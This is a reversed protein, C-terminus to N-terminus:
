AVVEPSVYLPEINGTVGARALLVLQAYDSVLEHGGVKKGGYSALASKPELGQLVRTFTARHRGARERERSGRATVTLFGGNTLIQVKASYRDSATVQIRGRPRDQRITKPVLQRIARLTTGEARAAESVTKSEGKRVRNIAAFCKVREEQQRSNLRRVRRPGKGM